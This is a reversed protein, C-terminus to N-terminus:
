KKKYSIELPRDAWRKGSIGSYGIPGMIPSDSKRFAIGELLQTDTNNYIFQEPKQGYGKVHDILAIGGEALVTRMQKITAMYDVVYRLTFASVVLDYGKIPLENRRLTIILSQIDGVGIALDSDEPIDSYKATVGFTEVRDGWRDRCDKLFKGEGCGVDLIKIPDVSSAVKEVLLQEVNKGNFTPLTEKYGRYPGGADPYLEGNMFFYRSPNMGRNKVMDKHQVSMYAKNRADVIRRWSIEKSM